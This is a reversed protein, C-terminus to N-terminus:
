PWIFGMTIKKVPITRNTYRLEKLKKYFFM